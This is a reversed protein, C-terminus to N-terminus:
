MMQRISHYEVKTNFQYLTRDQGDVILLRDDVIHMLPSIPLGRLVTFFDQEEETRFALSYPTPFFTLLHVRDLKSVDFMSATRPDYGIGHVKELIGCIRNEQEQGIWHYQNEFDWSYKFHKFLIKSKNKFITGYGNMRLFIVEDKERDYLYARINTDSIQNLQTDITRDKLAPIYQRFTVGCVEFILTGEELRVPFMFSRKNIRVGM